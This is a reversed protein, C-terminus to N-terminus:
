KGRETIKALCEAADAHATSSNDVREDLMAALSFACGRLKEINYYEADAMAHALLEFLEPYRGGFAAMSHMMANAKQEDLRGEGDLLGQEVKKFVDRWGLTTAVGHYRYFVKLEYRSDEDHVVVPLIAKRSDGDGNGHLLRATSPALAQPDDYVLLAMEMGKERICELTEEVTMTGMSTMVHKEAVASVFEDLFTCKGALLRKKRADKRGCVVIRYRTDHEMLQVYEDKQESTMAILPPLLLRHQRPHGSVGSEEGEGEEKEQKGEAEAVISDIHIKETYTSYGRRYYATITDPEGHTTRKLNNEKVYLDGDIVGFKAMLETLGSDAEFVEGAAKERLADAAASRLNRVCFLRMCNYQHHRDILSSIKTQTRCMKGHRKRRLVYVKTSVFAVVERTRDDLLPMLREAFGSSYHYTGSTYLIRYPSRAYDSVSELKLAPELRQKLAEMIKERIATIAADTLRERDATPPFKREDKVNLIWRSLPLEGPDGEIPVNVLYTGASSSSSQRDLIRTYDEEWSSKRAIIEGYLYIDPDDAIEVALLLKEEDGNKERISAVHGKMSELGLEYQGAHFSDGFDDIDAELEVTTRVGSFRCVDFIYQVLDPISIDDRLTVAIRTGYSDLDAPQPLVNYGVGNKGMVAFKEGTERSYTELVMIDSLTVYSARGCGFQGVEKSDFNDSRGLVTYVTLFKQQSMGMSDIGHIVLRRESPNLAVVIRPDTGPYSKRAIRCARAENNYLERFGSKPDSYLDHSIRQIIVDQELKVPILGNSSAQLLKSAYSLQSSDLPLPDEKVLTPKYYITSIAEADTGSSVDSMQPAQASRITETSTAEKNQNSNNNNEM